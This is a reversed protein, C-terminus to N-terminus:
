TYIECGLTEIKLTSFNIFPEIYLTSLQGQTLKGGDNTLDFVKERM